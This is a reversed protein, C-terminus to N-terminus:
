GTPTLTVQWDAGPGYVFYFTEGAPAPAEFVTATTINNMQFLLTPIGAPSYGVM